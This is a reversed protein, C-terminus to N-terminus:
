LFRAVPQIIGRILERRNVSVSDVALVDPVPIIRVASVTTNWFAIKVNKKMFHILYEGGIM